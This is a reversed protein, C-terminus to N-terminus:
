PQEPDETARWGDPHAKLGNINGVIATRLGDLTTQSYDGPQGPARIVISHGNGPIVRTIERWSSAADDGDETALVPDADTQLHTALISHNRAEVPVKGAGDPIFQLEIM